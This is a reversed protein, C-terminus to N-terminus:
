IKNTDIGNKELIELLDKEKITKKIKNTKINFSDYDSFYDDSNKYNVQEIDKLIESITYDDIKKYYDLTNPSYGFNKDQVNEKNFGHCIYLYKDESINIWKSYVNGPYIDESGIYSQEAKLIQDKKYFLDELTKEESNTTNNKIIYITIFTIAIFIIILLPLLIKKNNM